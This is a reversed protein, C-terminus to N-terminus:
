SVINKLWESFKFWPIAMNNYPLKTTESVRCVLVGEKAADKGALVKFNELPALHGELPTATLKIEVPYLKGGIQIILDVELGDHSRWFFIDKRMELLTFLKVTENIVLEEFLSGAMAGSVAADDGPQRTLECVIAPDLFYLKPSKILRKGYNKYYPQLFFCLYSAELISTWSKITPVSVGCKKSLQSANFIQGNYAACLGLFTEFAHLDKISLLQRVDREIYTQIYSRIWLDRKAPYICPEPFFSNWIADKINQKKYELLSFPLLEFIAIRGALSETINKMLSFQQSGTFLWRGMKERHRDIRIKIYSFMEPLYQIEDLIVPKDEFRDLFGNPDSKAFSREMPDEMNVYQYNKGFEHLLFTTKGSQRPGTVLVAPFMSLAKQLERKILREVYM